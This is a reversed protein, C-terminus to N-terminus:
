GRYPMGQFYGPHVFSLLKCHLAHRHFVQPLQQPESPDNRRSLYAAESLGYLRDGVVPTGIAALHIRIQHTRGTLPRLTVLAHGKGVPLCAIIKTRATKGDANVGHKYPIASVLPKGIPLDIERLDPMGRVVASYVKAVRGASFERGLAAM